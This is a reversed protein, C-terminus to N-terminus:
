VSSPSPLYVQPPLLGYLVLTLKCAFTQEPPLLGPHHKTWRSFISAGALNICTEHRAAEEQWSGPRTPDGECLMAGEPLDPVREGPRILVTVEHGEDVLTRTFATGVFGTGGTMFVSM